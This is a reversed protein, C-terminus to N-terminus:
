RNVLLRGELQKQLRLLKACMNAAGALLKLTADPPQRYGQALHPFCGTPGSAQSRLIVHRPPVYSKPLIPYLKPIAAILKLEAMVLDAM